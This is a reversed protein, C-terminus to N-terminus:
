PAKPPSLASEEPWTITGDEAVAMLRQKGSICIKFIKGRALELNSGTFFAMGLMTRESMPDLRRDPQIEETEPEPPRIYPILM